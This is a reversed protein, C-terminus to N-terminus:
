RTRPPICLSTRGVQYALFRRKLRLDASIHKYISWAFEGYLKWAVVSCVLTVLALICPVAILAPNVLFFTPDILDRAGLERYAESVQDRQVVSYTMMGLNYLCLGIVQITNKMRLGDWTLGVQYVFGFIFIAVFVPIAKASQTFQDEVVNANGHRARQFQAFVYAELGSGLLAQVLVVLFFTWTWPTHPVYVAHM